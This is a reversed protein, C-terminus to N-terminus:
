QGRTGPLCGSGFYTSTRVLSKRTHKRRRTNCAEQFHIKEIIQNSKSKPNKKQFNFILSILDNTSISLDDSINYIGSKIDNNSLLQNIVFSFNDIFCFSRKNEYVGLPWPINKSCLKYIM